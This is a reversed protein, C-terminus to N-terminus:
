SEGGGAPPDADRREQRAKVVLWAGLGVLGLPWWSELWDLSFGFLTNSLLLVGVAILAVGGAVSGQLKPPLGNMDPLDIGRVGDLALNYLTARRCADVITYIVFFGLFIGLAPSLASFSPSALLAIITAFVAIHIFGLKYYGVYVQGIGPMLSLVGALFPSKRHLRPVAGQM